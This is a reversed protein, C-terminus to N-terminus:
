KLLAIGVLILAIGGGHIAKPTAGGVVAAFAFSVVVGLAIVVTLAFASAKAGFFLALSFGVTGSMILSFNVLDTVPALAARTASLSGATRLGFFSFLTYAVISFVVTLIWNM